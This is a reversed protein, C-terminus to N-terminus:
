KKKTNHIPFISKFFEYGLETGRFYEKLYSESKVKKKDKNSDKELYSETTVEQVERILEKSALDSLLGLTYSAKIPNIFPEKKIKGDFFYTIPLPEGAMPKRMDFCGMKKNLYELNFILNTAKTKYFISLIKIHEENLQELIGIFFMKKNFDIKPDELTSKIIINSYAERILKRNEVQINKLIRVFIQLFEPSELRQKLKEKSLKINLNDLKKTTHEIFSNVSEKWMQKYPLELLEIFMGGAGGTIINIGTKVVPKFVEVVPSVDIKLKKSKDNKSM